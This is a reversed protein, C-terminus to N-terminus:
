LSRFWGLDEAGAGLSREISSLVFSSAFVSRWFTQMEKGIHVIYCCLLRSNDGVDSNSGFDWVPIKIKSWATFGVLQLVYQHGSHVTSRVSSSQSNTLGAILNYGVIRSKQFINGKSIDLLSRDNTRRTLAVGLHLHILAVPQFISVPFM